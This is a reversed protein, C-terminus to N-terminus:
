PHGELQRFLPAVVDEVLDLSAVLWLQDTRESPKKRLNDEESM